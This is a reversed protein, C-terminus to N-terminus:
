GPGDGNRKRGPGFVREFHELYWRLLGQRDIWTLMLDPGAEDFEFRTWNEPDFSARGRRFGALEPRAGAAAAFAAISWLRRGMGEGQQTLRAWEPGREARWDDVREFLWQVAPHGIARLRADQAGTTRPVLELSVPFWVLPIDSNFVIGAAIRDRHVNTDWRGEAHAAEYGDPTGGVFWVSDIRDLFLAPDMRWALAVNTLAGVAIIRVPRQSARMTELIHRAGADFDAPRIEGGSEVLPSQRGRHRPIDERGLLSLLRGLAADVVDTAYHEMIIGGAAVGGLTAFVAADFWDDVDQAPSLDTDLLTVVDPAFRFHGPALAVSGIADATAAAPDQIRFGHERMVGAAIPDNTSWIISAGSDQLLKAIRRLAQESMGAGNGGRPGVDIDQLGWGAHVVDWDGGALWQPLHELAHSTGGASEPLWRVEARGALADAVSRGWATTVSDGLLLVQPLPRSVQATEPPHRAHATVSLAIALAGAGALIVSQRM